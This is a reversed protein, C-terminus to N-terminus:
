WSSKRVGMLEGANAKERVCIRCMDFKGMYGHPRGCIACRHYLRTSLTVKKGAAHERTAKDWARECKVRLATRTM